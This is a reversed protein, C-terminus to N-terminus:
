GSSDFYGSEKARDQDILTGVSELEYQSTDFYGSEIVRDQHILTGM